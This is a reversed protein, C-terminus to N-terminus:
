SYGRDSSCSRVRTTIRLGTRHLGTFWGFMRASRSNRGQFIDPGAASPDKSEFVRQGWRSFIELHYDAARGPFKLRFVDNLGDGNPTFANPFWIKAECDKAAVRSSGVGICGKEDVVQVNYLGAQSVKLSPGTEGTSWLYSAFPRYTALMTVDRSCITTDAPLFDVPLEAFGEIHFGAGGTCTHM